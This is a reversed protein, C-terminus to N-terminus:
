DLRDSSRFGVEISFNGIGKGKYVQGLSWTYDYIQEKPHFLFEDSFRDIQMIKAVEFKM